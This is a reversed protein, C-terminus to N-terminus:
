EMERDFADQNCPIETECRSCLFFLAGIITHTRSLSKQQLKWPQTTQHTWSTNGYRVCTDRHRQSRLRSHTQNHKSVSVCGRQTKTLTNQLEVVSIFHFPNSNRHNHCVFFGYLIGMLDSVSLVIVLGVSRSCSEFFAVRDTYQLSYLLINCFIRTKKM